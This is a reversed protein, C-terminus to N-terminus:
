WDIFAIILNFTTGTQYNWTHFPRMYKTQPCMWLSFEAKVTQVHLHTVQAAQAAPISLAAATTEALRRSPGRHSQVCVDRVADKSPAEPSVFLESDVVVVVVVHACSHDHSM